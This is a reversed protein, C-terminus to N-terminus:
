NAFCLRHFMSSTVMSLFGSNITVLVQSIRALKRLNRHFRVIASEDSQHQYAVGAPRQLIGNELESILPM